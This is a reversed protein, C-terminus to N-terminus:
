THNSLRDKRETSICVQLLVFLNNKLKMLAVSAKDLLQYSTISKKYKGKMQFDNAM